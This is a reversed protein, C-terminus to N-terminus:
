SHPAQYFQPVAPQSGTELVKEVVGPTEEPQHQGAGKNKAAADLMEKYNPAPEQGEQISDSPASM